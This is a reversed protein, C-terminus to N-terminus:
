TCGRAAPNGDNTDVWSPVGEENNRKRAIAASRFAHSKVKRFTPILNGQGAPDPISGSPTQGTAPCVRAEARLRRLLGALWDLPVTAYAGCQRETKTVLIVTEGNQSYKRTADELLRHHAFRKRTKCEAIIGGDTVVVDPAREFLDWRRHIRRGGLIDAVDQEHQKWRKM